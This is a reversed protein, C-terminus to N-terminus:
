VNYSYTYSFSKTSRESLLDIYSLSYSATRTQKCIDGEM